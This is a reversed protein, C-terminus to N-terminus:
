LYGFARVVYYTAPAAFLLADIRDLIGGHGGLLRGTDKVQLDRKLMSEFLDGAVAILVIVLGLILAEGITLYHDRDQYLAVFAVFIGVLSGVVFGEWTKGPSLTPALKHRGFLRGGFYAFTDAAFVVLLVTFSILRPETHLRRLLIIHALGFGIWAAALVTAGIAATAPPRTKALTNLVFAVVLSSLFGGLMWVLGGREAGLLALLVGVYAAPALPALSRAMLVFEHVAITGAVAVLLFLWWGGAWVAGLVVPLGVVAVLVRNVFNSM